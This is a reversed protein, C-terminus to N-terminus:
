STPRWGASAPRPGRAAGHRGVGLRGVAVPRDAAPRVAARPVGGGTRAARACGRSARFAPAADALRPAHPSLRGHRVAAAPDPPLVALDLDRDPRPAAAERYEPIVANCCSSSSAASCRRTTKPTAAGRRCWAASRPRRGRSLVSRDLRAQAVGASRPPRRGHVPPRGGAQGGRDAAIRRAARAARRLASLHRDDAPAPRPLLQRPHVRRGRRRSRRCAQPEVRSVSRARPGRCVGRAPGAAVARPQVDGQRRSVGAAAGGHRLLGEPRAAPGVAPHARAHGPGRLLAPAHALPDRGPDHHYEHAPRCSPQFPPLHGEAKRGKGGGARMNRMM